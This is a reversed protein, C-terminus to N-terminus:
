EILDLAVAIPHEIAADRQRGQALEPDGPVGRTTLSGAHRVAAGARTATTPPPHDPHAAATVSTAAPTGTVTNSCAFVSPPRARRTVTSPSASSLPWCRTM